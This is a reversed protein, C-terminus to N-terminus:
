VSDFTEKIALSSETQQSTTYSAPAAEIASAIVANAAETGLLITGTFSYAASDTWSIGYQRLLANGGSTKPTTGGSYAWGNYGVFMGHGSALFNNTATQQAITPNGFWTVLLDANGLGNQWDSRLTVNTFGQSLLWTRASSLDTVIRASNGLGKSLWNLSNLYFTNTNFQSSNAFDAFGTKAGAIIRSVGNDVAALITQREPTQFVCTAHDGFVAVSGEAGMDAIQAVGSLLQNRIATQAVPDYALAAFLERAELREFCFFRQRRVSNKSSRKRQVRSSPDFASRSNQMWKALLSLM